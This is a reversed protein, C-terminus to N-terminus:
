DMATCTADRAIGSGGNELRQPVAQYAATTAGADRTKETAQAIGYLAFGSNPREVLAKEFAAEAETWKGATMM